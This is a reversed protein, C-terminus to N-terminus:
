GGDLFEGILVGGYANLVTGLHMDAGDGVGVYGGVVFFDFVEFVCCIWGRAGLAEVGCM